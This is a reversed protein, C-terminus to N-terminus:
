VRGFLLWSMRKWFGMNLFNVLVQENTQTVIVASALAERQKRNSVRPVGPAVRGMSKWQNSM